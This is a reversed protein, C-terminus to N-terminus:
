NQLEYDIAKKIYQWDNTKFSKVLSKFINRTSDIWTRQKAGEFYKCALPHIRVLSCPKNLKNCTHYKAALIKLDTKEEKGANTCVSCIGLNPKIKSIYPKLYNPVRATTKIRIGM